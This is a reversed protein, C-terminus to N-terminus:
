LRPRTGTTLVRMQHRRGDEAEDLTFDGDAELAVANPRIRSRQGGASIARSIADLSELDTM